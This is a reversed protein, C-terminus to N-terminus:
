LRVQKFRRRSTVKAEVMKQQGTYAKAVIGHRFTWSMLAFLSLIMLALMISSSFAIETGPLVGALLFIILANLVSVGQSWGLFLSTAVVLFIAGDKRMYVERM